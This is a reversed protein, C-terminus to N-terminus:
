PKKRSRQKPLHYLGGHGKAFGMDQELYTLITDFRRQAPRTYLSSMKGEAHSLYLTETGAERQKCFDAGTRRLERFRRKDDKGLVREVLRKFSAGLADSRSGTKIGNITSAVVLPRGDRRLLVRDDGKKGECHEKLLRQSERFLWHNSDQGTKSRQRICRPPRKKLFLENMRLDSLDQQTMGTNIALVIALKLMGVETDTRGWWKSDMELTDCGKYLKQLETKTFTEVKKKKSKRIASQTQKGFDELNRPVNDIIHQKYSWRYLQRVCRFDQRLTSPAIEGKAVRKGNKNAWRQLDAGTISSLSDNGFTDVFHQLRNKINQVRGLSVNEGNSSEAEQRKVKLFKSVVTKVIRPNWVRTKKKKKVKKPLITKVSSVRDGADVRKKIEELKRVALNYSERDSKNKGRALYYRKGKYNKVWCKERKHWNVKYTRKRSKM